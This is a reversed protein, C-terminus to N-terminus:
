NRGTSRAIIRGNLLLRHQYRSQRAKYWASPYGRTACPSAPIEQVTRWGDSRKMQIEFM